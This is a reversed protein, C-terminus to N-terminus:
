FESPRNLFGTNGTAVGWTNTPIVGAINPTSLAAPQFNGLFDVSVTSVIAAQAMGTMALAM